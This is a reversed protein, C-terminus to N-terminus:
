KLLRAMLHDDHWEGPKWQMARRRTGEIDFGHKRYLAIAPANAAYVWLEIRRLQPHALAWDMAIHMMADGLGVGRYEPAIEVGLMACHGMREYDHAKITFDAIVQGSESGDPRLPLAILYLADTRQLAESLKRPMRVCADQMEAPTMLTYVHEHAIALLFAQRAPIDNITVTRVRARRGDKLTIDRCVDQM